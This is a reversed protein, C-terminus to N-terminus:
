VSDRRSDNREASRPRFAGWSWILVCAIAFGVWQLAYSRHREIREDVRPWERLFGDDGAPSLRIVVPQVRLGSLARYRALDPHQWLANNGAAATEDGLQFFRSPPLVATGEILKPGGPVEPNPMADRRPLPIWGRDILVVLGPEQVLPTLVSVGAVGKRVENDILIQGDPLYIGAVRVRRYQLADADGIPEAPLTLPTEVARGDRLTQAQEKREAKQWQWNALSLFAPVLVALM